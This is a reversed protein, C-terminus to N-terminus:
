KKLSNLNSSMIMVNEWGLSNFGLTWGSSGMGLTWGSSGLELTQDSFNVYEVQFYNKAGEVPVNQHGGTLSRSSFGFPENFEGWRLFSALNLGL